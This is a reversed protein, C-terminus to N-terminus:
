IGGTSIIKRRGNTTPNREPTVMGVTAIVNGNRAAKMPVPSFALIGRGPQHASQKERRNVQAQGQRRRIELGGQRFDDGSQDERGNYGRCDYDDYDDDNPPSQRKAPYIM